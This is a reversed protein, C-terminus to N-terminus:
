GARAVDSEGPHCRSCNNLPFAVKGHCTGCYRGEMHLFMSTKATQKPAIPFAERHCIQCGAWQAHKEHSFAVPRAWTLPARISFDQRAQVPDKKVPIGELSDVPKIKGERAAAEWDVGYVGKPLKATFPYYHYKRAGRKGLSHCRNCNKGKPDDSCSAFIPKGDFLRQGDHCAGCYRGERNASATVGTGNARMAFGLDVHCLRCTFKARHLWHDFVVPGVGASSAFGDFVVKGYDFPQEPPPPPTYTQGYSPVTLFFVICILSAFLPCGHENRSTRREQTSCMQMFAEDCENDGSTFNKTM